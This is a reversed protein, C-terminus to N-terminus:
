RCLYSNLPVIMGFRDMLATDFSSLKKVRDIEIKYVNTYQSLQRIVNIPNMMHVYENHINKLVFKITIRTIKIIAYHSEIFRTISDDNQDFLTCIISWIPISSYFNRSPQIFQLLDIRNAIIFMLEWDRNIEIHHTKHWTVVEDLLPGFVKISYKYLKNTINIVDIRSNIIPIIMDMNKVIYARAIANTSARKITYGLTDCMKDTTIATALTGDIDTHPMIGRDFCIKLHTVESIISNIETNDILSMDCDDVTIYKIFLPRKDTKLHRAIIDNTVIVLTTHRIIRLSTNPIANIGSEFLLNNFYMYVSVFMNVDDYNANDVIQYMENYSNLTGIFQITADRGWNIYMRQVIRHIEYEIAFIDEIQNYAYNFFERACYSTTMHTTARMIEYRYTLIDSRARQNINDDHLLQNFTESDNHRAADCILCVVNTGRQPTPIIKRM